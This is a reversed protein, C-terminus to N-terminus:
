SEDVDQKAMNFIAREYRKNVKPALYTTIAETTARNAEELPLNL